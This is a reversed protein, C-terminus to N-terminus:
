SCRTATGAMISQPVTFFADGDAVDVVEDQRILLDTGRPDIRFLDYDAGIPPTPLGRIVAGTIAPGNVRFSLGNLTISLSEQGDAAVEPGTEADGQNM